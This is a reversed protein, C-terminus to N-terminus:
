AACTATETTTNNDDYSSLPADDDGYGSLPDDQPARDDAPCLRGLEATATVGDDLHRGDPTDRAVGIGIRAARPSLLIARHPPSNLWASVLRRPTSADGSGTVLIEGAWWTGDMPWGADRLRDRVGLGGPTTHSFYDRRVMDVAHDRAARGLRDDYRLVALGREQRTADILCALAARSAAVDSASIPTEAGECGQAASALGASRAPGAVMLAWTVVAGLAMAKLHMDKM